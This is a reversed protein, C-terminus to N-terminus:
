GRDAAGGQVDDPGVGRRADLADHGVQGDFPSFLDHATKLSGRGPTRGDHTQTTMTNDM